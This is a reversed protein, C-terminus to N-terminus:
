YFINVVKYKSNLKAIAYAVIIGSLLGYLLVQMENDATATQMYETDFYNTAIVISFNNIFHVLIPVLITKSWVFLYGFFIGMVIRSILGYFEMHVIGFIFASIVISVHINSFKSFLRMFLSRFILEEGIAPLLAIILGSILIDSVSNGQILKNAIQEYQNLSQKYINNEGLITDMLMANFEALLNIFPLAVLILVSATLFIEIKGGHIKLYAFPKRSMVIGIILAPAIFSSIHQVATFYKLASSDHLNSLVQMVEEVSLSYHLMYAGTLLLFVSVCGGVAAILAVLWKIEKPISM